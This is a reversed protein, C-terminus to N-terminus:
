PAGIVRGKIKWKFTLQRPEGLGWAAKCLLLVRLNTDFKTWIRCFLRMPLIRAHM